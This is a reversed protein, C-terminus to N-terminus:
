RAVAGQEKVVAAVLQRTKSAVAEYRASRAENLADEAKARAEGAIKASEGQSVEKSGESGSVVKVGIEPYTWYNDVPHEPFEIYEPDGSYFTRVTRLAKGSTTYVTRVEQISFDNREPLKTEEKSM